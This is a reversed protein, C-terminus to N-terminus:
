LGVKCQHNCGVSCCTTSLAAFSLRFVVFHPVESSHTMTSTNKPVSSKRLIKKLRTPMQTRSETTQSTMHDYNTGRTHHLRHRPHICFVRECPWVVVVVINASESLCFANFGVCRWCKVSVVKRQSDRLNFAQRRRVSMAQCNKYRAYLQDDHKKSDKIDDSQRHEEDSYTGLM